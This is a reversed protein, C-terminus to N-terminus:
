VTYSQDLIVHLEMQKGFIVVPLTLISDSRLSGSTGNAFPADMDIDVNQNSMETALLGNVCNILECLADLCDEPETVNAEGAFGVAAKFMAGDKGMDGTLATVINHEGKLEQLCIAPYNVTSSVTPAKIFMRYDILRSMTRIMIGCLRQTLEPQNYIFIPIVRDADCSKLDEMNSLTFNNSKQYAELAENFDEMTMYGSDVVSQMFALFANGQLVLLRSVQEDTLYGKQVAIDGFRMDYIAQLQNIENVQEISLLRESVAIVGLRVRKQEQSSFIENLNDESLKGAERLYDAFIRDFM